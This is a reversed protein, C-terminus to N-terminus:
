LLRKQQLPLEAHAVVQLLPLRSAARNLLEPLTPQQSLIIQTQGLVLVVAGLAALQVVALVEVWPLLHREKVFQQCHQVQLQQQVTILQETFLAQGLM